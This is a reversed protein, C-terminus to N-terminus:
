KCSTSLDLIGNIPQNVTEFFKVIHNKHSYPILYNILTSQKKKFKNNKNNILQHNFIKSTNMSPLYRRSLIHQQYTPWDNNVSVFTQESSSSLMSPIINMEETQLSSSTISTNVHQCLSINTYEDNNKYKDINTNLSSLQHNRASSLQHSEVYKRHNLLRRWWYQICRASANYQLFRRFFRQIVKANRNLMFEKLTTLQHFQSRTLHIRTRGFQHIIPFHTAIQRNFIDSNNTKNIVLTTTTSTPYCKIPILNLGLTLLIFVFQQQQQINSESTERRLELPTRKSTSRSLQILNLYWSNLLNFGIELLQNAPPPPNLQWFVRYQTIFEDYPYKAYYTSRLADLAALLGSNVLQEELYGPNILSLANGTVYCNSRSPLDPRICRIFFLNHCTLCDLLQDLSSKFNGFVTNLRRTNNTTNLRHSTNSVSYNAPFQGSPSNVSPSNRYTCPSNDVLNNGNTSIQKLPSRTCASNKSQNSPTNTVTYVANSLISYILSNNHHHGDDDTTCSEKVWTLLHVPLRDLNKAVFGSVSYVVTGGYHKVIFRDDYTPKSYSKCKSPSLLFTSQQKKVERCTSSQTKKTSPSRFSNDDYLCIPNSPTNTFMSQMKNIWDLERPDLLHSNSSIISPSLKSATVNHLRNLLCTEELLNANTEIAKVTLTNYCKKLSLDSQHKDENTTKDTTNITNNTITSFSNNISQIYSLGEEELESWGTTVAIRMFTEHLRENAYNICYQEFSNVDFCEFGFLDLIGLENIVGEPNEVSLQQNILNVMFHFLSNYLAKIFCDRQERAQTVTCSSKYTTMRKSQQSNSGAQVVRTLFQQPFSQLVEGDPIGLLKGAVLIKHKDFSSITALGAPDESYQQQQQNEQDNSKSSHHTFDSSHLVNTQNLDVNVIVDTSSFFHVSNLLLIVSLLAYFERLQKDGINLLQFAQLLCSWNFHSKQRGDGYNHDNDGNTLLYHCDTLSYQVQDEKSLSELFWRFVHFSSSLSQTTFVARPKELLYIQLKAGVLIQNRDYLLRIYKGFRSSNENFQTQANGLAELVPNSQMLTHEIRTETNAIQKQRKMSSKYTLYHLIHKTAETKGSGSTGTIIISQDNKESVLKYLCEETM